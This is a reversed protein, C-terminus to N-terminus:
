FSLKNGPEHKGYESNVKQVADNTLHIFKNQINDISFQKCSTRIYGEEYWYVKLKNNVVTVMMYCRIDFKRKNYLLPM